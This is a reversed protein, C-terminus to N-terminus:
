QGGPPWLRSTLYNRLDSKMPAGGRAAAALEGATMWRVEEVDDPNFPVASEAPWGAAFVAGRSWFGDRPVWSAIRACTAPDLVVGLEEHAERLATDLESEGADSMGSASYDLALPWSKKGRSRVTAAYLTEGGGGAKTLFLQGSQGYVGSKEPCMIDARAYVMGTPRGDADFGPVIEM